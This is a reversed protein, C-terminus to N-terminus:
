YSTAPNIISSEDVQILMRKQSINTASGTGSPNSGTGSSNSGSPVDPADIVIRGTLNMLDLWKDNGKYNPSISLVSDNIPGSINALKELNNDGVIFNTDALAEFSVTADFISFDM